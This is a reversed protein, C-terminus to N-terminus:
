VGFIGPWWALAVLLSGSFGPMLPLWRQHPKLGQTALIHQGLWLSWAISLGFIILKIAVALSPNIAEIPIFLTGGLGIILSVMAVPAYQYGLEVFRTKLNSDAGMRGALYAAMLTTFGLLTALIMM